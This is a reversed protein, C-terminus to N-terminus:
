RTGVATGTTLDFGISRPSGMLHRTGTTPLLLTRRGHCASCRRLRRRDGLGCTCIRLDGTRLPDIGHREAVPPRAFPSNRVDNESALLRLVQAINRRERAPPSRYKADNSSVEHM